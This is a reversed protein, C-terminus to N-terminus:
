QQPIDGPHQPDEPAVEGTDRIGAGAATSSM